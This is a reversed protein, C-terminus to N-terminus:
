VNLLILLCIVFLMLTGHIDGFAYVQEISKDFFVGVDDNNPITRLYKAVLRNGNIHDDPSIIHGNPLKLPLHSTSM